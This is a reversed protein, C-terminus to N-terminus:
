DPRACSNEVNVIRKAQSNDIKEAVSAIKDGALAVDMISNIGQSPDIVLGNKLLLDYM